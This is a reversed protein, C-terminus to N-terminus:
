FLTTCHLPKCEDGELHFDFLRLFTFPQAINYGITGLNAIEAQGNSAIWPRRKMNKLCKDHMELALHVNLHKLIQVNRVRFSNLYLM